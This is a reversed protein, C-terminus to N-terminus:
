LSPGKKLPVESSVLADQDPPRQSSQSDQRNKLRDGVDGILLDPAQLRLAQGEPTRHHADLNPDIHSRKIQEAVVEAEIEFRSVVHKYSRQQMGDLMEQAQIFTKEFLDLPTLSSSHAIQRQAYPISEFRHLFEPINKTWLRMLDAVDNGVAPTTTHAELSQTTQITEQVRQFLPLPLNLVQIRKLIAQLGFEDQAVPAAKPAEKKPALLALPAQISQAKHTNLSDADPIVKSVLLAEGSRKMLRKFGTMVSSGLFRHMEPREERITKLLSPSVNSLSAGKKLLFSTIKEDGALLAAGLLTLTGFRPTEFSFDSKKYFSHRTSERGACYFDDFYSHIRPEKQARFILQALLPIPGGLEPSDVLSSFSVGMRILNVALGFNGGDISAEIFGYHNSSFPASQFLTDFYDMEKLIKAAQFLPEHGSSHISHEHIVLLVKLFDQFPAKKHYSSSFGFLEASFCHILISPGIQPLLLNNPDKCLTTVHDWSLRTAMKQLYHKARDQQDRKLVEVFLAALHTDSVHHNNSLAEFVIPDLHPKSLIASLVSDSEPQRKQTIWYSHHKHSHNLVMKFFAIDDEETPKPLDLHSFIPPSSFYAHMSKLLEEQGQHRVMEIKTDVQSLIIEMSSPKIKLHAMLEWLSLDFFSHEPKAGHLPLIQSGMGVTPSESHNKSTEHSQTDNENKLLELVAPTETKWRWRISSFLPKFAPDYHRSTSADKKYALLLDMFRGANEKVASELLQHILDQELHNAHLHELVHLHAPHTM